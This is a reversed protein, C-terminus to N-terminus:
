RPSHRTRARPERLHSSKACALPARVRRLAAPGAGSAEDLACGIDRLLPTASMIDLSCLSIWLAITKLSAEHKLIIDM